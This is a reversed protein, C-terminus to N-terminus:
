DPLRVELWRPNDAPEASVELRTEFPVTLLPRQKTVDPESYLHAFLSEIRAVKGSAAYEQDGARLARLDASAVWGAYDDPTRIRTWNARSDVVAVNTGLIAQSVVEARDDPQGYMNVVPKLVVAEQLGAAFMALAIWVHM